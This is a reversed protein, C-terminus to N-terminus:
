CNHQSQTYLQIECPANRSTRYFPIANECTYKTDRKICNRLDEETVRLYTLKEKDVAIINNNIQTVIFTNNHILVSLTIVKIIDYASIITHEEIALWDKAYIKFPFYLGQQLQQTAEKLNTIIAEISMLKPHMTEKRTYTLYEIINEADRILETIVATIIIFHENIEAHETYVTIWQQLLKENRNIIDEVKEIHAITNNLIKIQNKAVHQIIQQRNKLLDLQENIRKEGNADMTGFLSKAISGIGDILERRRNTPLKYITQIQIM